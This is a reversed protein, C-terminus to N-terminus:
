AYLDEFATEPDPRPSAEAFKVAEEIEWKVEERIRRTDEERLVEKALLEKEFIMVPDREKWEEIESPIRVEETGEHHPRVRYTLCEVISPGEGRRARAVAKQIAAYVEM